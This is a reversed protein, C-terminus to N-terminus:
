STIDDVVSVIPTHLGDGGGRPHPKRWFTKDNRRYLHGRVLHRRPSARGGATTTAVHNEEQVADNHMKGLESLRMTVVQPLKAQKSLGAKAALKKIKQEKFTQSKLEQEMGTEASNLLAFFAFPIHLTAEISSGEEQIAARDQEGFTTDVWKMFAYSRKSFMMLGNEDRPIDIWLMPDIMVPGRNKVCAISVMDPDSADILYGIERCDATEQVHNFEAMPVGPPKELPALTVGKVKGKKILQARDFEVWVVTHPIQISDILGEEAKLDAVLSDCLQTTGEDLTYAQSVGVLDIMDMRIDSLHAELKRRQKSLGTLAVNLYRPLFM